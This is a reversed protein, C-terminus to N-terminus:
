SSMDRRRMSGRWNILLMADSTIPMGSVIVAILNEEYLLGKNGLLHILVPANVGLKAFADPYNETYHPIVNVGNEQQMKLIKEAKAFTAPHLAIAKRLEQEDKLYIDSPHYRLLHLCTLEEISFRTEIVDRKEAFNSLLSALILCM